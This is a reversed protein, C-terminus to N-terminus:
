LRRWGEGLPEASGLPLERSQPGGLDLARGIRTDFLERGPELSAESPQDAVEVAGQEIPVALPAPLLEAAQEPSEFDLRIRAFDAEIVFLAAM